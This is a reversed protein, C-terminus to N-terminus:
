HGSQVRLIFSRMILDTSKLFIASELEQVLFVCPSSLIDEHWFALVVVFVVAIVDFSKTALNSFSGGALPLVIQVDFLIFAMSQFM